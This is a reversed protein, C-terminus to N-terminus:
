IQLSKNIKKIDLCPSIDNSDEIYNSRFVIGRFKKTEKHYHHFDIVTKPIGFENSLYQCLEGASSMQDDTITEWFNYGLWSKEFVNEEDCYENLWNIYKDDSTKYLCGMNEFVISLSNKDVEKIGIFDTHYKPNYHQYVVGNRSITFTNWKKTSGYEKHQLRIIHNSDKRLSLGLIIQTKAIQTKYRNIEKIQYTTSDIYM